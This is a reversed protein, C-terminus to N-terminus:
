VLSLDSWAELHDRTVHLVMYITTHALDLRQLPDSKKGESLTGSDPRVSLPLEPMPISISLPDCQVSDRAWYATIRERVNTWKGNASTRRHDNYGTCDIIRYEPFAGTMRNGLSPNERVVRFPRSLYKLGHIRRFVINNESGAIAVRLLLHGSAGDEPTYVM